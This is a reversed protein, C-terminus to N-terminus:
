RRLTRRIQLDCAANQQALWGLKIMAARSTTHRLATAEALQRTRRHVERRGGCGSNHAQKEVPVRVSVDHAEMTCPRFVVRRVDPADDRAGLEPDRATAM